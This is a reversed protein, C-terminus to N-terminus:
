TGKAVSAVTAAISSAKETTALGEVFGLLSMGAHMVGRLGNIALYVLAINYIINKTKEMAGLKDANRRYEKYSLLKEGKTVKIGRKFMLGYCWYSLKNPVMAGVMGKEFKHTAHAAQTFMSKARTAGLVGALKSLGKFIIPLGGMIALLIGSLATVSLVENLSQKEMKPPMNEVLVAYLQEISEKKAGQAQAAKEKVGSALDQEIASESQSGLAELEKAATLADDMPMEEGSKETATKIIGMIPEIDGMASEMKSLRDNLAQVWGSAASKFKKTVYDSLKKIGGRVSDWVGEDLLAEEVFERLILEDRQFKRM